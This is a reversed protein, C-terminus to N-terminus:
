TKPLPGALVRACEPLVPKKQPPLKAWAEADPLAPFPAKPPSKDPQAPATVAFAFLAFIPITFRHM